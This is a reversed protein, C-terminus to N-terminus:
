KGLAEREWAQRQSIALRKAEEEGYRDMSFYRRQPLGNPKTRQAVRYKVKIVEGSSLVTKVHVTGVELAGITKRRYPSPTPDEKLPNICFYQGQFRLPQAVFSLAQVDGKAALALPREAQTFVAADDTGTRMVQLARTQGWVQYSAAWVIRGQEETLEQPAGIQDCQYYYAAFDKPRAGEKEREAAEGKWESELRALPVFSDPEYLYESM